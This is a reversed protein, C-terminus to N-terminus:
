VLPSAARLEDCDSVRGRGAACPHVAGARACLNWFGVPNKHDQPDHQLLFGAQSFENPGEQPGADM